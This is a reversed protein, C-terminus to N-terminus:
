SEIYKFNNDLPKLYEIEVCPVQSGNKFTYTKKHKLLTEWSIIGLIEGKTVEKDIEVAIFADISKNQLNSQFIRDNISLIKTWAGDLQVSYVTTKIDCVYRKKLYELLMDRKTYYPDFDPMEVGFFKHVVFEGAYGKIDYQLPDGSGVQTKLSTDVGKHELFRQAYDTIFERDKPTIEIKM